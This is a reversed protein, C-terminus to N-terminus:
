RKIVDLLARYMSRAHNFMELGAEYSRNAERADALETLLDVNSASLYGNADALPHGPDYRQEGPRQDLIMRPTPESQQRMSGIVGEFTLLKRRYGYTEANAMNESLIQMRM